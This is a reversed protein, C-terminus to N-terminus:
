DPWEFDVPPTKHHDTTVDSCAVRDGVRRSVKADIFAQLLGIVQPRVERFLADTLAGNENVLSGVAELIPILSMKLNASENIMNM